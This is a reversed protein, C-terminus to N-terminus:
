CFLIWVSLPKIIFHVRAANQSIALNM